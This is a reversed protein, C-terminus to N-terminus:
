LLVNLSNTNYIVFPFKRKRIFKNQTRPTTVSDSATERCRKCFRRHGFRKVLHRKQPTDGVHTVFGRSLGIRTTGDSNLAVRELERIRQRFFLFFKLCTVAGVTTTGRRGTLVPKRTESMM